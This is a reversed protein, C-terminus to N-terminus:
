RADPGVLVHHYSGGAPIAVQLAHSLQDVFVLGPKEIARIERYADIQKELGGAGCRSYQLMLIQAVDEFAVMRLLFVRRRSSRCGQLLDDSVCGIDVHFDGREALAIHNTHMLDHQIRWIVRDIKTM